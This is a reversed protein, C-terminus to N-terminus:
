GVAWRACPAVPTPRRRRPPSSYRDTLPPLRVRPAEGSTSLTIFLLLRYYEVAHGEFEGGRTENKAAGGTGATEVRNCM